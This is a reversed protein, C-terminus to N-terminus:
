SLIFAKYMNLWADSAINEFSMCNNEVIIKAVQWFELEDYEYVVRVLKYDYIEGKEKKKQLNSSCLSPDCSSPPFFVIKNCIKHVRPSHLFM